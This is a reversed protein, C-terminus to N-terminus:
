SYSHQSARRLVLLRRFRRLRLCRKGRAGDQGGCNGGGHESRQGLGGQGVTYITQETPDVMAAAEAVSRGGEIPDIVRRRLDPAYHRPM